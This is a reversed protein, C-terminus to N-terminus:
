SCCSRSIRAFLHGELVAQNARSVPSTGGFDEPEYVEALGFERDAHHTAHESNGPAPVVCPSFAYRRLSGLLVRHQGFFDPLYMLLRSAGVARRADVGSQM